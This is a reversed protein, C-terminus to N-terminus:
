PLMTECCITNAIKEIFREFKYLGHELSGFESEITIHNEM